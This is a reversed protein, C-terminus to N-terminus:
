KREAIRLQASRSRPNNKMEEESPIIAKKNIMTMTGAQARLGKKVLRDETSHFTIVSFRGGHALVDPVTTLLEEISGLEDNVAMRLAQFTKTACHTKKHRYMVPVAREVVAVLELTTTIPAKTRAEVIASAIRKAYREDAFGFLVDAITSESWFNVIDFATTMDETPHADFTMQLPEDRLFSFGRKSSELEQSSLGLDAVIGDVKDINLKKLISMLHRYNSHVFHLTPAGRKIAELREKAESLADQDLDICILTGGKGIAKAIEVSHGGRNVTCDVYVGGKKLSLGDITERLLVPTHQMTPTKTHTKGTTAQPLRYFITSFSINM